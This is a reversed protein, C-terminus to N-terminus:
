CAVATLLALGARTPTTGVHEFRAAGLLARYQSETREMGGTMVLMVIDILAAESFEHGPGVLREALVLRDGQRMSRRCNLLVQVAQEDTWDHIVEKLLFVDAQCAITGFIDGEQVECRGALGAAELHRRADDLVAPQEVLIGRTGPHRNLMAAMLVGRGGGIDAICQGPKLAIADAILPAMAATMSAMNAHFAAAADPRDGLFQFLSQEYQLDFASRGTKVCDTLHQWAGWWWPQGYSLLKGAVSGEADTCLLRAVPTMAFQGDSTERFVGLTSLARLLRHLARADAGVVPALEQATMPAAALRGPIGLAAVAHLMQTTRYGGILREVQAVVSADASADDCHTLSSATPNM